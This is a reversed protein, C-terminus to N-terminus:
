FATRVGRQSGRPDGPQLPDYGWAPLLTILLEIFSWYSVLTKNGSMQPLMCENTFHIMTLEPLSKDSLQCCIMVQVLSRKNDYPHKPVRKLLIQILLAVIKILSFPDPWSPTTTKNCPMQKWSIYCFQTVLCGCRQSRVWFITQLIHAMKDSRLWNIWLVSQLFHGTQTAMM